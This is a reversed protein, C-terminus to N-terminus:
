RYRRGPEPVNLARRLVAAGEASESVLYYVQGGPRWVIIPSGDGLNRADLSYATNMDLDPRARFGQIFASAWAGGDTAFLLHAAAGDPSGPGTPQAPVGIQRAGIFRLGSGQAFLTDDFDMRRGLWVSTSSALAEPTKVDFHDHSSASAAALHEQALFDGLQRPGAARPLDNPQSTQFLVFAVVGGGILVTVLALIIIRSM